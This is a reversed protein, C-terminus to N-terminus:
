ITRYRARLSPQFDVSVIGCILGSCVNYLPFVEGSSSRHLWGLLRSPLDPRIRGGHLWTRERLCYSLSWLALLHLRLRVLFNMLISHPFFWLIFCCVSMYITHYRRILLERKSRYRTHRWVCVRERQGCGDSCLCCYPRLYGEKVNRDAEFM